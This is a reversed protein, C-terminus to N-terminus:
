VRLYGRTDRALHNQYSEASQHKCRSRKRLASQYSLLNFAQLTCDPGEVSDNVNKRVDVFFRLSVECDEHM